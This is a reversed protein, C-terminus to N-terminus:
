TGPRDQAISIMFILGVVTEVGRCVGFSLDYILFGKCQFVVM